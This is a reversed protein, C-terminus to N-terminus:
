TAINNPKVNSHGVLQCFVISPDFSFKTMEMSLYFTTINKEAMSEAFTCECVESDNSAASLRKYLKKPSVSSFNCKRVM